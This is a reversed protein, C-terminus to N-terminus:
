PWPTGKRTAPAFEHSANAGLTVRACRLVNELLVAVTMPGVGGPVPTIAGAIRSASAFDVDGVIGNTGDERLVRSIGVDIVTAGPKLFDATVFGPKGAAVVLVDARRCVVALDRTASHALTVTCNETVLLQTMPRGVISSRGVIVAELGRLSAHVTRLLRLAGLPTCPVMAPTGIGLLGVNQPHFGDVDKNPDIALVIRNTDIHKPLPLQVLIAHVDDRACLDRLLALVDEESTTAPLAYPFSRIGAELARRTKTRVYMRSAADDGVIVVALGPVIGHALQLELVEARVSARLRAAELRGDIVRASM